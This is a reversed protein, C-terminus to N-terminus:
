EEWPDTEPIAPTMDPPDPIPWMDGWLEKGGDITITEGTIYDGAASALYAAMWAIEERRGLRKMPVVGKMVNLVGLEKPYRKLGSSAILGPAICNIRIGRSMWEIALTKTMAEVGSRAAVSHAMGTFGRRSLMTINLIRGGNKLMWADAAGRTMNWTGTLNTGVVADFGNPTILEAPSFFQGGGNNVLIDFSGHDAVISACVEAVRARDRIDCVIPHVTRGCEESLATAAPVVNAEKRSAIVVTAGLNAYERAIQAGIGTGGGTVLAVQGELLDTRFISSM